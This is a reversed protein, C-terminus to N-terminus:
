INPIFLRTGIPVAMSGNALNNAKALVWWNATTKYFKYSLTDLRDGDQVVYYFPVDETPIRTPITTTYYPIKKTTDVTLPSIYKNM